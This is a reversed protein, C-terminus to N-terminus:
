LACEYLYGPLIVCTFAFSIGLHMMLHDELNPKINMQQILWGVLAGDWLSPYIVVDGCFWM